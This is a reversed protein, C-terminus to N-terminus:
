NEDMKDKDDDVGEEKKGGPRATMIVTDFAKCQYAEQLKKFSEVKDPHDKDKGFEYTHMLLEYGAKAVELLAEPQRLHAARAKEDEKKEKENSDKRIKLKDLKTMKRNEINSRRTNMEQNLANMERNYEAIITKGEIELEGRKADHDNKIDDWVGHQEDLIEALDKIGEMEKLARRYLQLKFPGTAKEANFVEGLFSKERAIDLAAAPFMEMLQKTTMLKGVLYGHQTSLSPFYFRDM